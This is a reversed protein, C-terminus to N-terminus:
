FTFQFLKEMESMAKEASNRETFEFEFEGDIRNRQFESAFKGFEELNSLKTDMQIALRRYFMRQLEHRIKRTAFIDYKELRQVFSISKKDKGGRSSTCMSLLV